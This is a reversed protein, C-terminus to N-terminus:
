RFYNKKTFLTRYQSHKFLSVCITTWAGGSRTWAYCELSGIIILVLPPGVHWNVQYFRDTLSVAIHLWFEVSLDSFRIPVVGLFSWKEWVKMKMLLHSWQAHLYTFHVESIDSIIECFTYHLQLYNFLRRSMATFTAKLSSSVSAHASWFFIPGCGGSSNDSSLQSASATAISCLGKEHVSQSTFKGM